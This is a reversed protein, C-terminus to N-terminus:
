RHTLPTCIFGEEEGYSLYIMKHVKWKGTGQVQADEGLPLLEHRFSFGQENQGFTEVQYGTAKRTDLDIMNVGCHVWRPTSRFAGATWGAQQEVRMRNTSMSVDGSVGVDVCTTKAPIAIWDAGAEDMNPRDWTEVHITFGERDIETPYTKIKLRSGGPFGFCTIMCVVRPPVDYPHKFNVRRALKAGTDGHDRSYYSGLQVQPDVSGMLQAAVNWIATKNSPRYHRVIFHSETAERYYIRLRLPAFEKQKIRVLGLGMSPVINFPPNKSYSSDHWTSVEMDKIDTDKGAWIERRLRMKRDEHDREQKERAQSEQKEKSEQEAKERVERELRERAEREVRMKEDDETSVKEFGQRTVSITTTGQIRIKNERAQRAKELLTHGERKESRALQVQLVPKDGAKAFLVDQDKDFYLGWVGEAEQVAVFGEWGELTLRRDYKTCDFPVTLNPQADKRVGYKVEYTDTDVYM